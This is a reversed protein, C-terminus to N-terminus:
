KPIDSSRKQAPDWYNNTILLLSLLTVSDEYYNEHRKKITEYLADLYEQMNPDTKAAVGFPAAFVISFYDGIVKGDLRYGSKINSPDRGSLHWIRYLMKRVIRRSRPDSNLLADAGIRWPDRCANYYYSDDEKELFDRPAPLYSSRNADYRIFDPLLATRNEPLKQIDEAAHQCADILELWRKDETVRYFTRFHSLMFDSTRATYQNYRTGNQDVWDGLLPLHSEKGITCRMIADIIRLAEKKYDIAGNSGWQSDAVLLAYAIDADGDFASDGHGPRKEPIEWSMLDKCISSPHARVFRYLGDFIKRAESDAGAMYATILMGYGQSESTTRTKDKKDMAIRFYNGTHVLYNKKWIRYYELVRNDLQRPSYASPSISGPYLTHTPFPHTPTSAKTGGAVGLTMTTMLIFATILAKAKSPIM